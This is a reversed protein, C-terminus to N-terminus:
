RMDHSPSLHVFRDLLLPDFNNSFSEMAQIAQDRTFAPRYSRTVTLADFVDCIRLIRAELLITDGKIGHPYGTGDYNEHHQEVITHIDDHLSLARIVECSFEPHKKVMSWEGRNLPGAKTLVSGLVGIKGIDHLSAAIMLKEIRDVPLNIDEALALCLQAVRVGHNVEEESRLGLLIQYSKIVNEIEVKM